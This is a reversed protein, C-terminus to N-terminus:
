AALRAEIVPHAQLLNAPLDITRDVEVRTEAREYMEWYRRPAPKYGHFPEIGHELSIIIQATIARELEAPLDELRKALAVYNYELCQAVWWDAQQLIVARIRSTPM